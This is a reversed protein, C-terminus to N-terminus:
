FLSEVTEKQLDEFEEVRVGERLIVETDYIGGCWVRPYRTSKDYSLDSKRVHLICPETPINKVSKKFSMKKWKGEKTMIKYTFFQEHEATKRVNIVRLECAVIEVPNGNEVVEYSKIFEKKNEETQNM